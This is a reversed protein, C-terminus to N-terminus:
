RLLDEGKVEPQLRRVLRDITLGQAIISFVVVAYTMPVILDRAPGAPLSLALAVSIGGRLGGWTLIKITHPAFSSFPRLLTVPLAVSVFRGLLVLPIAILGALLFERTFTLAIVELGILVFLIANLIEEVFEWFNFLHERTTRTIGDGREHNGIILGAVVVAIPASLQLYDAIAYGGTVTALTLMIEVQNNDVTRLAFRTIEGLAFGFLVGAVAEKMFLMLAGDLLSEHHSSTAMGLLTLFLVVAVGDNFLSEGAIKMEMAKSIGIKKLIGLVAVPDTPSILAGFLLCYLPSLHIGAVGLAYWCLVGVVVTSIVVSLTALVFVIVRQQRLQNLDINLASAFLLYGLMGHLLTQNFDVSKLLAIAHEESGIGITDLLILALASIFALLMLGVTPPLRLYRHNVYSFLAAAIVLEALIHFLSM